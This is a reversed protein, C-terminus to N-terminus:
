QGNPVEVIVEGSRNFVATKINVKGVTTSVGYRYLIEILLYGDAPDITTTVGTVTLESLWLPFANYIESRIAEAASARNDLAFSKINTGFSPRMVREQLLSMVVLVIRDQWIKSEDTTSSLAGTSDFSFPLSIASQAM